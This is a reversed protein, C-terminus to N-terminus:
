HFDSFSHRMFMNKDNKDVIKLQYVSIELIIKRGM